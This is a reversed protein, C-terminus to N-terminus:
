KVRSSDCSVSVSYLPHGSNRYKREFPSIPPSETLRAPELHTGLARNVALAFELAYIEWNCRM